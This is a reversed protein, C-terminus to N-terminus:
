GAKGPDPVLVEVKDWPFGRLAAYSPGELLQLWPDTGTRLREAVGSEAVVGVAGATDVVLFGYHQAARGVTKGAPSLALGDIDVDPDLRLRTGIPMASPSTNSGDSRTAPPRVTRWHAPGPIALGIAHEIHGERIEQVRIASGASALGSASVGYPLAFAGRNTSVHDIRGGWCAQWTGDPRRHAKWFEWLQDSDPSWVSLEGDTGQSAAADTPIPVGKFHAPGDYLGKSPAGKKQCDDFAIDRRPTNPGAVALSMSYAASNFAAVGGYRTRISGRLAAMMPASNVDVQVGLVDRAFVNDPAFRVSDAPAAAAPIRKSPAPPTPAESLVVIRLGLGGLLLLVGIVTAGIARRRRRTSPVANETM